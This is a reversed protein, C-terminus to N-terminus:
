GSNRDCSFRRHAATRCDTRYLFGGLQRRHLGNNHTGYMGRRDHLNEGSCLFPGTHSLSLMAHLTRIQLTNQWYDNALIDFIVVFHRNFVFLFVSFVFYRCVTSVTSPLSKKTYFLFFSCSTSVHFIYPIKVHNVLAKVIGGKGGIHLCQLFNDLVEIGKRAIQFGHLGHFTKPAANGPFLLQHLKAHLQSGIGLQALRDIGPIRFATGTQALHHLLEAGNGTCLSGPLFPSCLTFIQHLQNSLIRQQLFIGEQKLIQLFVANVQQALQALLDAGSQGEGAAIGPALHLAIQCAGNGHLILAFHGIQGGDPVQGIIFVASDALCCVFCFQGAILPDLIGNGIGQIGDLQLGDGVALKATIGRRQVSGQCLGIHLPLSQFGHQTGHVFIQGLEPLIQLGLGFGQAILLAQGPKFQESGHALATLLVGNFLCAVQQHFQERGKVTFQCLHDPSSKVLLPDVEIGAAALGATGETGTHVADTFAPNQGVKVTHERIHHCQGVLQTM